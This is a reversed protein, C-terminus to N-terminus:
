ILTHKFAPKVVSSVLCGVPTPTVKRFASTFKVQRSMKPTLSGTAQAAAAAASSSKWLSSINANFYGPAAPQVQWALGQQSEPGLRDISEVGFCEVRHEVQREMLQQWLELGALLLGSDLDGDV